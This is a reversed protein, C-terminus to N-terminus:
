MTTDEARGSHRHVQHVAKAPRPPPNTMLDYKLVDVFTRRFVDHRRGTRCCDNGLKAGLKGGDHSSKGVKSEQFLVVGFVGARTGLALGVGIDGVLNGDM